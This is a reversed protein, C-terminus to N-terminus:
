EEKETFIIVKWDYDDQVTKVYSENEYREILYDKLNDNFKRVWKKHFLPAYNYFSFNWDRIYCRYDNDDKDYDLIKPLMKDLMKNAKEDTWFTKRWIYNDIATKIKDCPIIFLAIPLLYIPINYNKTKIVWWQKKNKRETRTKVKDFTAM